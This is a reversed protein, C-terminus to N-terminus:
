LSSQRMSRTPLAEDALAVLVLLLVPKAVALQVMIQETIVERNNYNKSL